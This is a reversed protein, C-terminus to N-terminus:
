LFGKEAPVHTESPIYLLHLKRTQFIFFIRMRLIWLQYYIRLYVLVQLHLELWTYTTPGKTWVESINFTTLARLSVYPNGLNKLTWDGLPEIVFYNYSYVSFSM